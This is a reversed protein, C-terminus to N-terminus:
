EFGVYIKNASIGLYASMMNTIELKYDTSKRGKVVVACGIIQPYTYKLFLADGGSQFYTGGYSGETNKAYVCSVSGDLTISVRASEVGEISSCMSASVRELERKYEDAMSIHISDVSTEKSDFDCTLLFVGLAFLIVLFIYKSKLIKLMQDIM